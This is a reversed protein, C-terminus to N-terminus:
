GNGTKVLRQEHPVTRDRENLLRVCCTLARENHIYKQTRHLSWDRSM